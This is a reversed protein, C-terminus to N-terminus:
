PAPRVGPLSPKRVWNGKETVRRSIEDCDVVCLGEERIIKSATSKGTAIGGTLGVLRMSGTVGVSHHLPLLGVVRDKQSLSSPSPILDPIKTSFRPDFIEIRVM